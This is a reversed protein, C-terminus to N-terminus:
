TSLNFLDELYYYSLIDSSTQVVFFIIVVWSSGSSMFFICLCILYNKFHYRVIYIKIAINKMESEQSVVSFSLESLRDHHFDLTELQSYLSELITRPALDVTCGFIPDFADIESKVKRFQSSTNCTSVKKLYIYFYVM